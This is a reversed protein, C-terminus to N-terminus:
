TLLGRHWELITKARNTWTHRMASRLQNDRLREKKEPTMTLLRNVQACLSDLSGPSFLLCNEGDTLFPRLVSLDSSLIPKGTALYEFLKLPSMYPILAGEPLYPMVLMNADQLISPIEKHPVSQHLFLNACNYRVALAASEKANGGIIVFNIHGMRTAAEALFAAGKEHSLSGTYVLTPRDYIHQGFLHGLGGPLARSFVTPDVGDASTILRKQMLGAALYSDSIEQSIGVIGAARSANMAQIFRPLPVQKADRSFVHSEFLVPANREALKWAIEASRTFISGECSSPIQRLVNKEFGRGSQSVFHVHVNRPISLGYNAFLKGTWLHFIRAFGGPLYADLRQVLPAFACIMNVVQVSNAHRSPIKSKAIYTLTNM